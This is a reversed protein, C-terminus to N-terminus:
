YIMIMKKHVKFHNEIKEKEFIRNIKDFLGTIIHTEEQMTGIKSGLFITFLKMMWSGREEM